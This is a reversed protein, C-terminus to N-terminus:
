LLRDGRRSYGAQRRPSELQVHGDAGCQHLDRGTSRVGTEPFRKQLAIVEQSKMIERIDECPLVGPVDQISKWRPIIRSYAFGRDVGVLTDILAPFHEELQYAAWLDLYEEGLLKEYKPNNTASDHLQLTNRVMRAGHKTIVVLGKEMMENLYKEILAKDMRLKAAIEETPAPLERIVRAQETTALKALILPIYKSEKASMKEALELYIPDLHPVGRKGFKAALTEYYPGIERM